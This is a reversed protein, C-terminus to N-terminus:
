SLAAVLFNARHQLDLLSQAGDTHFEVIKPVAIAIVHTKFEPEVTVMEKPQTLLQADQLLRRGFALSSEKDALFVKASGL